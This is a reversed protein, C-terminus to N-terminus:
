RFVIIFEHKSVDIQSRLLNWCPFVYQVTYTNFVDGSLFIGDIKIHLKRTGFINMM